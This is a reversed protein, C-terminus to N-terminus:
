LNLLRALLPFHGISRELFLNLLLTSTQYISASGTPEGSATEVVYGSDGDFVAAIVMINEKTVDGFGYLFGFWTKTFTYTDGIPKAVSKAVVALSKDIPIDLVAYHYPNGGNDKWRSEKEVIYARLHGNYKEPENNVVTVEIKLTGSGSWVVNVDLNIDPVERMGAQTIANRYPQENSQAGIIHTYKGDFFVDPVNSIGLEKIRGRVNRNAEDWVLSVYHFDLDGSNYINYLQSAATVCYPCTTMTGSEVLVKHTFEENSINSPETIEKSNISLINSAGAIPVMLMIMIIIGTFIKKM